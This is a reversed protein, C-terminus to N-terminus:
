NYNNIGVEGLTERVSKGDLKQIAEILFFACKDEDGTQELKELRACTHEDWIGWTRGEYVLTSIVGVFDYSAAKKKMAKKATKEVDKFLLKTHGVSNYETDILIGVLTGEIHNGWKTDLSCRQGIFGELAEMLGVNADRYTYEDNWYDSHYKFKKAQSVSKILKYSRFFWYDADMQEKTIIGDFQYENYIDNLSYAM